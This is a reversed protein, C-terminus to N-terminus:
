SLFISGLVIFAIGIIKQILVKRELSESGFNPFFLSLIIGFILVFFPQFGSVAFVLTVPALLLAFFFVIDGTLIILGNFFNLGLVALTNDKIVTQFQKRYSAVFVLLIIGLLVQGVMNWFLSTSFGTDIAFFKFIVNNLAYLFSSSFMLLLLKKKITINRIGGQLNLSLLLGGLIIAACAYLQHTVLTEGLIFYGLIFGFVPIMQFFPAVVSAEDIELAYLYFIVYSLSLVGNIILYLTTPMGLGVITPNIFYIIPLAILAFLSSFIVLSGVAGAKFYKSILHKDIHNAVAHLIPTILAIFFWSM